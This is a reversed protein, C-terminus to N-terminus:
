HENHDNQVNQPFQVCINDWYIINVSFTNSTFIRINKLLKEPIFTLAKPIMIKHSKRKGTLLKKVAQHITIIYQFRCETSIKNKQM